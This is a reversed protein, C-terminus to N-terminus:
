EKINQSDDIAVTTGWTHCQPCQWHMDTVQVGCETCRYHKMDSRWTKAHQILVPDDNFGLAALRLSERLNAPTLQIDKQLTIAQAADKKAVTELWTLAFEHDKQYQWCQMLLHSLDDDHQIFFPALLHLYDPAVEQMIKLHQEVTATDHKKLAICILIIHAHICHPSLDLAQEAHQHALKSDHNHWSDQAMAAWLYARHERNEDNKIREIRSLLSEAEMWEHSQERIRLCAMLAEIHDSKTDLVKQYHYLARDLLGGTQFDKALAFHAQMYLAEPVEPRALINQHIRVARGIEGQSLFMEGLAMYVETSESRLKAVQVMEKLAREPKDSLLYTIGRLLSPVRADDHNLLDQDQDAQPRILLAWIGAIFICLLAILLLTSM